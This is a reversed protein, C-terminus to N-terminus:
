GVLLHGEPYKVRKIKGEALSLALTLPGIRGAFMTFIILLKEPDSLKPTIGTSLGVTGFASTVEFLVNMLRREHFALMALTVGCVLIGSVIIITFTKFLMEHDLRRGLITVDGRGRIIAILTALLTAFTTTKVGGGTGGPSAGIFMLFILVVLSAECMSGIDITNFGATRASTSQFFSVLVKEGFSLTHFFEPSRQNEFFFILITGATLLSLTVYIATRSHLSLKRTIRFDKLELIVTFGIGGSIILGCITLTIFPDARYKMLNDSFLGFGANCFASVSHFLAYWCAQKPGFEFSWRGWLILFGIGEIIFTALIIHVVISTVDRTTLRNLAEKLILRFRYSLQGGMLVVGLASFTMVGLGGVQILIMIAIQGLTTFHAGTNVVVLGTVCVASTATFLADIFGTPKNGCASLTLILAGTLIVSMFSLMIVQSITLHFKKRKMIRAIDIGGAALFFADL